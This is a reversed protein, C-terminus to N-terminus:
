MVAPLIFDEIIKLLFRESKYSFNLANSVIVMNFDPVVFIYQGGWGFAYFSDIQRGDVNLTRRWWMFGYWLNDNRRVRKGTSDKIWEASVIQEGKSIGDNLFLQGIKAMDRPRLALGGDSDVSGDPYRAWDYNSINLPSFLFRKSFEEVDMGSAKEVIIGLLTSNANSYIYKEGPIQVLPKELYFRAIDDTQWMKSVDGPDKIGQRWELGATMTILHKLKINIKEQNKLYDFEPFFNLVPVELDTIYGENKAIGVLISTISKTASALLHKRDRYWLTLPPGQFKGNEQFYEELAIKGDKIIIINHIDDYKGKLIRIIMDTILRSDIEVEDLAACLWDDGTNEPKEYLYAIEKSPRFASELSCLWSITGTDRLRVWVKKYESDTIEKIKNKDQTLRGKFITRGDGWDPFGYSLNGDRYEIETINQRLLCSPRLDVYFARLKGKANQDIKVLSREYENEDHVTFEKWYGLVDKNAEARIQGLSLSDLYWFFALIFFLALSGIFYLIRKKRRM